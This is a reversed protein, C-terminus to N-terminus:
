QRYNKNLNLNKSMSLSYFFLLLYYVIIFRFLVIENEPNMNFMNRVIAFSLSFMYGYDSIRKLSHVRWFIKAPFCPSVLLRMLTTILNIIENGRPAVRGGVWGGIGFGGVGPPIESRSFRFRSCLPAETYFEELEFNM